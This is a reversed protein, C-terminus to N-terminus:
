DVVWGKAVIEEPERYREIEVEGLPGLHLNNGVKLVYVREGLEIEVHLTAIRPLGGTTPQKLPLAPYPWLHIRRMMEHHVQGQIVEEDTLHKALRRMEQQALKGIENM